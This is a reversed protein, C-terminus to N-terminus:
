PLLLQDDSITGVKRTVPRSGALRQQQGLGTQMEATRLKEVDKSKKLTVDLTSFELTLLGPACPAGRIVLQLRSYGFM